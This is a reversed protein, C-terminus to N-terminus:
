NKIFFGVEGTFKYLTTDAICISARNLHPEGNPGSAYGVSAGRCSWHTVVKNAQIVIGTNKYATGSGWEINDGMFGDYLDMGGLAPRGRFAEVPRTTRNCEITSNFPNQTTNFVDIYYATTPNSDGVLLVRQSYCNYYYTPAYYSGGYSNLYGYNKVSITKRRGNVGTRTGMHTGLECPANYINSGYKDPPYDTDSGMIGSNEHIQSVSISPPNGASVSTFYLGVHQFKETLTKSTTTTLWIYKTGADDGTGIYDWGGTDLGTNTYALYVAGVRMDVAYLRGTKTGSDYTTFFVWEVDLYTTDTPMKVATINGVYKGSISTNRVIQGADNVEIIMNNNLFIVIRLTGPTNKGEDVVWMGRATSALSLLPAVETAQYGSLKSKQIFGGKSFGAKVVGSGNHYGASIVQDTEGPTITVAGRNPMTGTRLTGDANSFTVGQLVQSEVASGQGKNISKVGDALQQFTHPSTGPVTGGKATIASKIQNKGNGVSTFLEALAGEVNTATFNNATDAIEINAAAKYFSSDKGGLTGADGTISFAGKGAGDLRPVKNAGNVAVENKDLKEERLLADNNVLREFLPNFVNAHAPDTIELKRLESSFDRPDHIPQNAM